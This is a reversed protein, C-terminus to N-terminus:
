RTNEQANLNLKQELIPIINPALLFFKIKGILDQKKKKPSFASVLEEAFKDKQLQFDADSLMRVTDFLKFLYNEMKNEDIENWPFLNLKMREITRFIIREKNWRYVREPIKRIRELMRAVGSYDNAQGVRLEGKPPIICPVFNRLQYKQHDELINEVELALEKIREDTIMIEKKIQTHIRHYKQKLSDPIENGKILYGRIEELASFLEEEKLQLKERTFEEIEIKEKIKEKIFEMQKPKLDLGNLLNLLYIEEKLQSLKKNEKKLNLPFVLSNLLFLVIILNFIERKLRMKERWIILCAKYFIRPDKTLVDEGGKSSPNHFFLNM